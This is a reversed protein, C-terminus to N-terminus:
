EMQRVVVVVLVFSLVFHFSVRRRQNVEDEMIVSIRDLADAVSDDIAQRAESTQKGASDFRTLLLKSKDVLAPIEQRSEQSVQDMCRFTHRLFNLKAM